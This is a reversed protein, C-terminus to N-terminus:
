PKLTLPVQLIITTGTSNGAETKDIVQQTIGFLEARRESIGMGKSQYEVHSKAKLVAAQTRGVGNDAIALVLFQGNINATIQIQGQKNKLHRVGHRIANEVYPQLLMAPVFTTAKQITSDCIITYTFLKEFRLQELQLYNELYQLETNLNIIAADSNDITARMLDSFKDLYTDAQALDKDYILSKISNLCNFVFHPNIQAKLAQMELEAIRKETTIKELARAQKQRNRWSFFGFVLALITLGAFVWFLPKKWFPAKIAFRVTTTKASASGDRKVSRIEVIYNDPSLNKLDIIEAQQWPGKNLRYEFVPIFGTLDVGSFAITINNQSYNFQYKDEIKIKEGNVSVSTIYTVIDNAPIKLSRDLFSIGNNTAVYVTNSDIFIDNIQAGTLGDQVGFFTVQYNFAKNYTYNIRHLGENTGLWIEGTSTSFLSKCINGRINKTLAIKGVIANNQLVVLTDTALGVWTLNDPTTCITNVRYSLAKSLNALSQINNKGQWIYLGENSGIYINKNLNVNLAVARRKVSDVVKNTLFNYTVVQAHTGMVLMSDNLVAAAKTSRNNQGFYSQKITGNADFWYSGNQVAAYVGNKLAFVKRVIADAPAMAKNTINKIGYNGDFQLVDGANTGLYFYKNKYIATINQQLTTNEFASIRKQQVKILGSAITSVWLNGEYDKLITRAAGVNYVEEIIELTAPNVKYTNGSASQLYVSGGTIIQKAIVFPYQKQRAFTVAGNSNCTYVLITNKQTWFIENNLVECNFAGNTLFLPKYTNYLVTYNEVQVYGNWTLLLYKEPAYEYVNVPEGIKIISANNNVKILSDKIKFYTASLTGAFMLGSNTTKIRFPVPATANKFYPLETDGEFKDTLQNYRCAKGRFPIVWIAGEGDLAMDFVENDLLGEKTTYNTFKKGDFRAVGNETAIWLFGRKDILTKYIINSPLGDALTYKINQVTQAPLSAGSCM